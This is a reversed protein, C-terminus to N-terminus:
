TSLGSIESIREESNGSIYLDCIWEEEKATPKVGILEINNEHLINLIEKQNTGMIKAIKRSSRLEPYLAIVKNIYEKDRYM